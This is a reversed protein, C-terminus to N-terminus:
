ADDSGPERPEGHLRLHSPSKRYAARIEECLPNTCRPARGVTRPPEYTPKPSSSLPGPVVFGCRCSPRDDPIKSNCDPCMM